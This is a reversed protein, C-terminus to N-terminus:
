RSWIITEKKFKINNFAEKAKAVLGKNEEEKTSADEAVVSGGLVKITAKKFNAVVRDASKATDSDLSHKQVQKITKEAMETTTITKLVEDDANKINILIEAGIWSNSIKDFILFTVCM